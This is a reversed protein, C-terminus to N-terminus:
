ALAHDNDGKRTVSSNQYIQELLFPRFTAACDVPYEYVCAHGGPVSKLISKKISENLKLHISKPTLIDEEGYFIFTPCSISSLSIEENSLASEILYEATKKDMKLANEQMLPLSEQVGELFSEGFIWPLSTKFRLSPGGIRSAELWSNLKCKLHFSLHSYTGGVILSELKESYVSAYKLAVRGGNSVGILSFSNISEKELIKNLYHVQDGLSFVRSIKNFEGQGPGDYILIHFDDRLHTIMPEWLEKAAFLGNIFVLWKAHPQDENIYKKIFISSELLSGVM